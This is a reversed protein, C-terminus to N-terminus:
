ELQSVVGYCPDTLSITMNAPTGPELRYPIPHERSPEAALGPLRAQGDVVEGCDMAADGDDQQPAVLGFGRKETQGHPM